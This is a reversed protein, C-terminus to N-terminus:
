ENNLKLLEEIIGDAIRFDTKLLKTILPKVKPIISLQKAKHIVGLSGTVKFKLKKALKRAKLDDLLLLVDECESALAITSAEGSDVQTELYGQYKKDIVHRIKIWNPLPEGFEKAIETTTILESYVKRM